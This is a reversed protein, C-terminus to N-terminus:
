LFTFKVGIVLLLFALVPQLVGNPIRRAMRAGFHVAPLSGILLGALLQFDVTNLLFFHGLGAVLTLPVAHAIDTGVVRLAPLRPYLTLLLAACFAGAGVSSLTVLVGLILGAIVTVVTAHRHYWSNEDPEQTSRAQLRHKFLIVFATLILMVGLAATLIPGYHHEGDFVAKLFYSTLLAGPISGAALLMVLRWSVTHQRAHTVAGGAKTVAAYLLDTGIAIHHPIGSFILLPTMLSGGGVGTLGVAFGVGAGAVIYFLLDM